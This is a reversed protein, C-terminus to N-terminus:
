GTTTSKPLSIAWEHEKYLQRQGKLIKEGDETVIPTDPLDVPPVMYAGKYPLAHGMWYDVLPIHESHAGHFSLSLYTSFYSRLNHPTIYPKLGARRSAKEVIYQITRQSEDFICKNSNPIEKGLYERLIEIADIGLFTDYKKKTKQREMLLHLPETGADFEQKILKYTILERFDKLSIGTQALCIIVAKRQARGRSIKIMKALEEPTPVNKIRTAWLKPSKSILPVYNANYFSAITNHATVATGRSLAKGNKPKELERLWEQIKEEHKRQISKDEKHQLQEDREAIIEDPTKKMFAAYRRLFHLYTNETSQSHIGTGYVFNLWKTVSKQEKLKMEM